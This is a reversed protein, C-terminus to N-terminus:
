GLGAPAARDCMPDPRRPHHRPTSAVTAVGLVCGGAAEVARVAEVATAGTTVIDDIVVVDNGVLRRVHRRRVRFAGALNARRQEASLESQDAVHRAHRLCGLVVAPKGQRCLSKAAARALAEVPDHGRSRTSAASSPVPVLIVRRVRAPLHLETAILEALRPGLDHRLAVRGREKYGLVLRRLLEDYVGISVIPAWGIVWRVTVLTDLEHRCRDCMGRVVPEDRGASRCGACRSPLVLDLGARLWGRLLGAVNLLM